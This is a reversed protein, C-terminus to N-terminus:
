FCLGIMLDASSKEEGDVVTIRLFHVVIGKCRKRVGASLLGVM